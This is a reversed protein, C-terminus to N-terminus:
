ATRLASKGDPTRIEVVPLASLYSYKNPLRELYRHLDSGGAELGALIGRQSIVRQEDELM